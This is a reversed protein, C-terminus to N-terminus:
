GGQSDSCGEGTGSCSTRRESVGMQGDAEAVEKKHKNMEALGANTEDCFKIWHPDVRKVGDPFEVIGLVHSVVGAPAGGVLPSAEIPKSYHEWTHFYGLVGKVECLRLEWRVSVNPNYSAM